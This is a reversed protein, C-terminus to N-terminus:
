ETFILISSDSPHFSKFRAPIIDQLEDIQNGTLPFSVKVLINSPDPIDGVPMLFGRGAAPM